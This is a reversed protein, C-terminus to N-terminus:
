ARVESAFRVVAFRHRPRVRRSLYDVWIDVQPESCRFVTQIPQLWLKPEQGDSTVAIVVAASLELAWKISSTRYDEPLGDASSFVDAPSNSFEIEIASPFTNREGMSRALREVYKRPDRDIGHGPGFLVSLQNAPENERILGVTLGLRRVFDREATRDNTQSSSINEPTNVRANPQGASAPTAHDKM